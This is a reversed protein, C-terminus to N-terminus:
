VDVVWGEVPDRHVAVVPHRQEAYCTGVKEWPMPPTIDQYYNVMAGYESWGSGDDRRVARRLGALEGYRAVANVQPGPDTDLDPRWWKVGPPPELSLGCECEHPSSQEYRLRLERIVHTGRTPAVPEVGPRLKGVCRNCFEFGGWYVPTPSVRNRCEAQFQQKEGSFKARLREGTLAHILQTRACPVWELETPSEAM